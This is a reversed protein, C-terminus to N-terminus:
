IDENTTNTELENIKRKVCGGEKNMFHRSNECRVNKM